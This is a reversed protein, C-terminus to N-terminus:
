AARALVPLTSHEALDHKKGFSRNERDPRDRALEGDTQVSSPQFNLNFYTEDELDGGTNFHFQFPV